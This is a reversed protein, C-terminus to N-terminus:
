PSRNSGANRCTGTKQDRGNRLCMLVRPGPRAAGPRPRHPHVERARVHNGERARPPVATPKATDVGGGRSATESQDFGILTTGNRGCHSLSSQCTVGLPSAASGTRALLSFALRSTTEQSRGRRKCYSSCLPLAGGQVPSHPQPSPGLCSQPVRADSGVASCLATPVLRQRHQQATADAAVPVKTIPSWLDGKAM